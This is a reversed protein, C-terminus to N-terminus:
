DRQKFSKLPAKKASKNYQIRSLVEERTLFNTTFSNDQFSPQKEPDNDKTNKESCGGLLTASLLAGIKLINKLKKM